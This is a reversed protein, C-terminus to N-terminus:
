PEGWTNLQTTCAAQFEQFSLGCIQWGNVIRCDDLEPCRPLNESWWGGVNLVCQLMMLIDREEYVLMAEYGELDKLM